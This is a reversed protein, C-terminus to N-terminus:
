LPYLEESAKLGSLSDLYFSLEKVLEETVLGITEHSSSPPPLVVPSPYENYISVLIALSIMTCKNLSSHM